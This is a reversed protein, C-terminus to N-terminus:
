AWGAMGGYGGQGIRTASKAEFGQTTVADATKGNERGSSVNAKM